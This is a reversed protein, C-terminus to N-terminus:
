CNIEHNLIETPKLRESILIYVYHCFIQITRVTWQNILQESLVREELRIKETQSSLSLEARIEKKYGKSEIMVLKVKKIQSSSLKKIVNQWQKQDKPTAQDYNYINICIDKKIVLKELIQLYDNLNQYNTFNIYNKNYQSNTLTHVVFKHMSERQSKTKYLKRFKNTMQTMLEGDELFRDKAPLLNTKDVPSLLRSNGHITQFISDSKLKKANYLWREFVEEKVDFVIMMEEYDQKNSYAELIQRVEDFAYRRTKVDKQNTIKLRKSTKPKSLSKIKLKKILYENTKIASNQFEKKRRRPIGLMENHKVGLKFDLQCLLVGLQIDTLHIYSEYTTRPTAHGAIGALVYNKKFELSTEFYSLVEIAEDDEYPLLKKLNRISELSSKDFGYDPDYLFSMLQFNTLCSHRLSHTTLHSLGTTSKILSNMVNSLDSAKYSSGAQNAILTDGKAKSRRAAVKRFLTMDSKTLLPNLLVRRLASSTKNNGYKNDRVELYSSTTAIDRLMIKAIEGIRLGCRQGLIMSLRISEIEEKPTELSETRSLIAQFMKESIYGTKHHVRTGSALQAIPEIGYNDVLYKHIYDIRVAINNKARETRGLEILEQYLSIFDEEICDYFDVKQTILLWRATITKSYTEITSIEYDPAKSLFWGVLALENLPANNNLLTKHLQELGELFQIGSNKQNNTKKFLKHMEVAINLNEKSKGIPKRIRITESSKNIETFNYVNHVISQWNELSLSYAKDIGIVQYWSYEPLQLGIYERLVYVAAKLFRNMGFDLLINQTTSQLRLSTYLDSVVFIKKNKSCNDQEFYKYLLFTTLPSLFVQAQHVAQDNIYTNTHYKENDVRVSVMPLDFILQLDVSSDVISSLISQLVASKLVASHFILSLFIDELTLTHHEDALKTMWNIYYSLLKQGDSFWAETQFTDPRNSSVLLKPFSINLDNEELNDQCNKVAANFGELYSRYSLFRKDEKLVNDLKNWMTSFTLQPDSSILVKEFDIYKKIMQQAIRQTKKSQHDRNIERQEVGSIREIM